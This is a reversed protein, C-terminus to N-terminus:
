HFFEAELQWSFIKGKEDHFCLPTDVSHDPSFLFSVNGTKTWAGARGKKRPGEGLCPKLKKELPRENSLRFYLGDAQLHGRDLLGETYAVTRVCAWKM